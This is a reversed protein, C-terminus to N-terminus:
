LPLRIPLRGPANVSGSSLVTRRRVAYVQMSSTSSNGYVDEAYIYFSTGPDAYATMEYSYTQDDITEMTMSSWYGGPPRSVFEVRSLGSSDFVNAYVVVDDGPCTPEELTGIWIEGFAPPVTENGVILNCRGTAQGDNLDAELAWDGAEDGTTWYRSATRNALVTESFLYQREGDAVLYVDVQGGRNSWVSVLTQTNQEYEQGCSGDM